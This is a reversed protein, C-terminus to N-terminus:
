TPYDKYCKKLEEAKSLDFPEVADVLQAWSPQHDTKLWQTLMERLRSHMDQEDREIKDLTGSPISLLVGISKWEKSISLLQRFADALEPPGGITLFQLVVVTSKSNEYVPTYVFTHM